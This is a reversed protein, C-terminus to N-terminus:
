EPYARNPSGQGGGHQAHLGPGQVLYTLLCEAELSNMAPGVSYKLTNKDNKHSGIFMFALGELLLLQM